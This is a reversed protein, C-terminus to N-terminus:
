KSDQNLQLTFEKILQKTTLTKSKGPNFWSSDSKLYISNNSILGMKMSDNEKITSKEIYVIKDAHKVALDIDHSVIISTSNNNKVYNVLLKMLTDATGADLNGTPEDAFLVSFKSAIARVFALRQRQGGSLQTIKKPSEYIYNGQRDNIVNGSDDVKKKNGIIERVTTSDFIEQLIPLVENLLEVESYKESNLV